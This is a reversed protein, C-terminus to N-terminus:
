NNCLLCKIIKCIRCYNIEVVKYSSESDIINKAIFNLCTRFELQSILM